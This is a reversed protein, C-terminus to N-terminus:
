IQSDYLYDTDKISCLTCSHLNVKTIPVGDMFQM